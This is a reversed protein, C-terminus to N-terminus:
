NLFTMFGLHVSAGTTDYNFMGSRNNFYTVIHLGVDLRTDATTKVLFGFGYNLTLSNLTFDRNTRSLLASGNMLFTRLSYGIGVSLYPSYPFANIDLFSYSFKVPIDFEYIRGSIKTRLLNDLSWGKKGRLSQANTFVFMPTATVLYRDYQVGLPLSVIISAFGERAEVGGNGGIIFRPTLRLKESKQLDRVTGRRKANTAGSEGDELYQALMINQGNDTPAPSSLPPYASFVFLFALSLAAVFIVNSRGM